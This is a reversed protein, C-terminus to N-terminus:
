FIEIHCIEFIAVKVQIPTSPIFPQVAHINVVSHQGVSRVRSLLLCFFLGMIMVSYSLPRLQRQKLAKLKANQGDGDQKKLMLLFHLQPPALPQSVALCSIVIFYLITNTLIMFTEPPHCNM